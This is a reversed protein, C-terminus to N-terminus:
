PIRRYKGGGLNDQYTVIKESGIGDDGDDFEEIATTLVYEDKVTVVRTETESANDLASESEYM